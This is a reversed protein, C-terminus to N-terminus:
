FDLLDHGSVVIAGCLVALLLIHAMMSIYIGRSLHSAGLQATAGKPGAWRRKIASGDLDKTAGGLSVNLAFAMAAVAWGGEEYPATGERAKFAALADSMRATPTFLGALAILIGALLNPVFGMLKELTLSMQGFGKTFGEKGFRWSLAALGMYLYAGPLGAILYWLVPAVLGKDFSRAGMAIGIRTITYEDSTSMDTRTSRAITYFAGKLPKESSLAQFLRFLAFWVAGATLSLSLLFIEMIKWQPYYLTLFHAFKGMFLAILLGTVTLIFGRFSLDARTRDARDLRGGIGGFFLEIIRWLFPNANGGMPGTLIGICSVLFVAAIAVPLRDPDFIHGHIQQIYEFISNQM